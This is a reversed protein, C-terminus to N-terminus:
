QPSRQCKKESQPAERSATRLLKAAHHTSIQRLSLRIDDDYTAQARELEPVLSVIKPKKGELDIM